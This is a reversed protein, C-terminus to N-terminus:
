QLSRAECKEVGGRSTNNHDTVVNSGGSVEEQKAKWRGMAKFQESWQRAHDAVWKDQM